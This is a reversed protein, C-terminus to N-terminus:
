GRRCRSSCRRWSSCARPTTRRACTWSCGWLFPWAGSGRAAARRRRWSLCPSSACTASSRAATRATTSCRRPARAARASAPAWTACRGRQRRRGARSTRQLSARARSFPPTPTSSPPAQLPPSLLSPPPSFPASGPSRLPGRPRALAATLAPAGKKSMDTVSVMTSLGDVLAKFRKLWEARRLACAAEADSVPEAGAGAGAGGGEGAGAGAGGGGEGEAGRALRKLIDALRDGAVLRPCANGQLGIPEHYGGLRLACEQAQGQASRAYQQLTFGALIRVATRKAAALHELAADPEIPCARVWQAPGSGGAPRQVTYANSLLRVENSALVVSDEVSRLEELARQGASAAAAASGSSRCFRAMADEVLVWASEEFPGGPASADRVERNTTVGQELDARARELADIFAVSAATSSSPPLGALFADFPGRLEPTLLLAMAYESSSLEASDASASSRVSGGAHAGTRLSATRLLSSTRM